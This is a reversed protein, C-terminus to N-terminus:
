SISSNHNIFNPDRLYVNTKAEACANNKNDVAVVENIIECKGYKKLGLEIEKINDDTIKFNLKLSSKAPSLYQIEASKTWVILKKEKFFIIICLQFFLIAHQSFVEEM